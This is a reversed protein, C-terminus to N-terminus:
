PPPGYGVQPECYVFERTGDGHVRVTTVYIPMAQDEESFELAYSEGQPEPSNLDFSVRLEAKTPEEVSWAYAWIHYDGPTLEPLFIGDWSGEGWGDWDLVPNQAPGEGFDVPQSNSYYVHRDEDYLEFINPETPQRKFLHLDLDAWVDWSLVLRLDAREAQFRVTILKSTRAWGASDWVRLQVTNEGAELPYGGQGMWYEADDEVRWPVGNIVAEVSDIQVEDPQEFLYRTYYFLQLSPTSVAGGDQVIENDSDTLHFGNNQLVPLPSVLGIGATTDKGVSLKQLGAQYGQLEVKLEYEGGAVEPFAFQGLANSVTRQEGLIVVAGALPNGTDKETVTGSVSFVGGERTCGVLILVLILLLLAYRRDVSM